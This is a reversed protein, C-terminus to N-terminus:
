HLEYCQNIIKAFDDANLSAGGILGGDIDDKSFLSNSNSPKCSGGYLISIQQSIHEGFKEKLLSRIFAHMEQAQEASATKGTGIAWVPEYAIVVSKIQESTLHFLGELVQHKVIDFHIDEERQVLQEGCCFIVNLNHELCRDVKQALVHNTENHYNRRESHGIIVYSAGASSLMSSSVEGTYAGVNHVSCDQAGVSFLGESQQSVLYVHTHPVALIVPMVHTSPVLKQKLDNVFRHAEDINKNMKWNGAVIKKRNM